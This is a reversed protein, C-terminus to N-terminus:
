APRRRSVLLMQGAEILAGALFAGGGATALATSGWATAAVVAAAGLTLLTGAAMAANAAYLEAVKPVPKRGAVPGFHHYWVLFPVIKYYHAAVFLSIGLVLTTVYAVASHPGRFGTVALSFGQLAGAALFALAAAAMRMGADLVARKRTRFFLAAQLLFAGAGLFILAAPVLRVWPGTFHHLSFLVLTGASLLRVAWRGPREDAGHSLLFMPLLKHAVGVVVLGVWGVLAVHLHTSLAAIRAAGMFPWRLNTALAVGLIVTLALFSIASALAWWTLDRRPTRKLTAGVNVAFALLGTALLSAGVVAVGARHTALGTVFALLGPVHLVLTLRAVGMWRIERELVVPLLQYLAGLISTTIWGLTFLHTVATVGPALFSAAALDPAVVVLGVAGLILFALAAAFHSGPLSFPPPEVGTLAGM